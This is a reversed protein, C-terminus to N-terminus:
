LLFYYLSFILGSEVYIVCGAQLICPQSFILVKLMVERPSQGKKEMMVKGKRWEHVRESYM